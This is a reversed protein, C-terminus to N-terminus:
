SVDKKSIVMDLLFSLSMLLFGVPIMIQFIWAPIKDGIMAGFDIEMKVFDISFWTMFFCIIAASLNLIIRLFIQLKYGAIKSLLDIAIHKGSLTTLIAGIFTLWIIEQRAIEGALSLHIGFLNRFLIQGVVILLMSVLVLIALWSFFHDLIKKLTELIKTM